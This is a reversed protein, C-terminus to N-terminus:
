GMEASGDSSFCHGFSMIANECSCATSKGSVSAKLFILTGKIFLEQLVSFPLSNDQAAKVLLHHM